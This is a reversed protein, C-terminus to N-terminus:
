LLCKQVELDAILIAFYVQSCRSKLMRGEVILRHLEVIHAELERIRVDKPELKVLKNKTNHIVDEMVSSSRKASPMTISWPAHMCDSIFGSSFSFSHLEINSSAGFRRNVRRGLRIWPRELSTRNV